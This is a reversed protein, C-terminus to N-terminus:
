LAYDDRTFAYETMLHGCFGRSPAPWRVGHISYFVIPNGEINPFQLSRAKDASGPSILHFM